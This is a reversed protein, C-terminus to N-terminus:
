KKDFKQTELWKKAVKPNLLAKDLKTEILKELKGEDFESKERTKAPKRASEDFSYHNEAIIESFEGNKRSFHGEEILAFSDYFKRMAKERDEEFNQLKELKEPTKQLKKKSFERTKAPKERSKSRKRSTESSSAESEAKEKIKQM